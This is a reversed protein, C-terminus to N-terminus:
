RGPCFLQVAIWRSTEVAINAQIKHLIRHNRDAAMEVTPRAYVFPHMGLIATTFITIVLVWLAGNALCLPRRTWSPATLTMDQYQSCGRVTRVGGLMEMVSAIWLVGWRVLRIRAAVADRGHKVDTARCSSSQVM